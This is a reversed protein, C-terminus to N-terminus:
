IHILSLNQFMATRGFEAFTMHLNMVKRNHFGGLAKGPDFEDFGLILRWPGPYEEAATKFLLGIDESSDVWAPIAQQLNLVDAEFDVGRLSVQKICQGIVRKKASEVNRKSVLGEGRAEVAAAVRELNRM